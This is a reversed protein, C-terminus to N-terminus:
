KSGLALGAAKANSDFIENLLGALRIGAQLLRLKVTPMHQYLYDFSYKGDGVDYIPGRLEFSEALWDAPRSNMYDRIVAPDDTNIFDAFERFSLQQSDILKSDWLWHLNVEENFFTVDINNGGRDESRGVHLPQHLIKHLVMQVYKLIFTHVQLIM